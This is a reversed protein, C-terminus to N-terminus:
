YGDQANQCDGYLGLLQASSVQLQGSESWDGKSDCLVTQWPGRRLPRSVSVKVRSINNQKGKNDM